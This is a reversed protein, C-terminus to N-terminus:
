LKNNLPWDQLRHKVHILEDLEEKLGVQRIRGEVRNIGKIRGEVRNIITGM